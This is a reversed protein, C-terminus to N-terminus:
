ENKEDEEIFPYKQIYEYKGPKGKRTLFDAKKLANMLTKDGFNYGRSALDKRVADVSRSELFYKKGWLIKLADTTTKAIKM